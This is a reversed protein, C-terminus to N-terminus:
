SVAQIKAISWRIEALITNKTSTSSSFTPFFRLWKADSIIGFSGSVENVEPHLCLLMSVVVLLTFISFTRSLEEQKSAMAGSVTAVSLYLLFGLAMVLLTAFIGAVSIHPLSGDMSEMFQAAKEATGANMATGASDALGSLDSMTLVATIVAGVMGGIGAIMWIGIQM